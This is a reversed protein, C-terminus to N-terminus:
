LLVHFSNCSCYSLSKLFLNIRERVTKPLRRLLCETRKGGRGDCRPARKALSCIASTLFSLPPTRLNATSLSPRGTRWCRVRAGDRWRDARRLCNDRYLLGSGHRINHLKPAYVVQRYVYARLFSANSNTFLAFVTMLPWVVPLMCCCGESKSRRPNSRTCCCPRLGDCLECCCGGRRCVFLRYPSASDVTSTATVRTSTFSLVNCTAKCLM